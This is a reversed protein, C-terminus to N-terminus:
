RSVVSQSEQAAGKEFMLSRAFTIQEDSKDMPLITVLKFYQIFYFMNKFYELLHKVAKLAVWKAWILNCFILLMSASNPSVLLIQYDLIM